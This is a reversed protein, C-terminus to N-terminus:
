DGEQLEVSPDENDYMDEEHDDANDFYLCNTEGEVEKDRQLNHTEGFGNVDGEEMQYLSFAVPLWLHLSGGKM